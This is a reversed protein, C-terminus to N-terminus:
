LDRRYAGAVQSKDVARVGPCDLRYGLLGVVLGHLARRLPEGLCPVVHCVERPQQLHGRRRPRHPHIAGYLAALDVDLRVVHPPGNVLDAVVLLEVNLRRCIRPQHLGDLLLDCAPEGLFLKRPNHFGVDLFQAADNVYRLVGALVHHLRCHPVDQLLDERVGVGPFVGKGRTGRLVGLRHAVHYVPPAAAPRRFGRGGPPRGLLPVTEGPAVGVLRVPLGQGPGLLHLAAAGVGLLDPPLRPPEPADVAQPPKLDVVAGHLIVRRAVEPAGPGPAPGHLIQLRGSLVQEPADGLLLGVHDTGVVPCLNGPVRRLLLAQIVFQRGRLEAKHKFGIHVRQLPGVGGPVVGPATGQGVVDVVRLQKGVVRLQPVHAQLKAGHRAVGAPLKVSVRHRQVFGQQGLRLVHQDMLDLVGDLPGLAKGPPCARFVPLRALLPFVPDPGIVAPDLQQLFPHLGGQGGHRLVHGLLEALVGGQFPCIWVCRHLQGLLQAVPRVGVGEVVVEQVGPAQLVQAPAVIRPAGKVQILVRGSLDLRPVGCGPPPPVPAHPPVHRRGPCIVKGHEGIRVVEGGRLRVGVRQFLPLHLHDLLAVRRRVLVVGPDAARLFDLGEPLGHLVRLPRFVVLVVRVVGAGHGLLGQLASLDLHEAGIRDLRAAKNGRRSHLRLAIGPVPLDETPADWQCVHRPNVGGLTLVRRGAPGSVGHLICGGLVALALFQRRLLLLEEPVALDPVLLSPQPLDVM